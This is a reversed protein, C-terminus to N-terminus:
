DYWEPHNITFSRRALILILAVPAAFVLICLISNLGDGDEQPVQSQTQGASSEGLPNEASAGSQGAFENASQLDGTGQSASYQSFDSVIGCANQVIKQAGEDLNIPQNYAPNLNGAMQAKASRIDVVGQNDVKIYSDCKVWTLYGEDSPDKLGACVWGEIETGESIFVGKTQSACGLQNEQYLGSQSDSGLHDISVQHNVVDGGGGAVSGFHIAVVALTRFRHSKWLRRGLKTIPTFPEEGFGTYPDFKVDKLAQLELPNM